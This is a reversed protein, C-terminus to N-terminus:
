EGTCFRAVYLSAFTQKATATVTNYVSVLYARRNGDPVLAVPGVYMADVKTQDPLTIAKPVDLSGGAGFSSDAAGAPTLARVSISTAEAAPTAVYIVSGDARALTAVVTDGVISAVGATGFASVPAGNADLSAIGNTGALFLGFDPKAANASPLVRLLAATAQGDSGFTADLAFTATFRAVDPTTSSWGGAVVVDDGAAPMLQLPWTGLGISSKASSSEAGTASLHILGGDTLVVLSGDSREVVDYVNGNSAIGTVGGIQVHGDGGFTTDVTGTPTVRAITTSEVTSPGSQELSLGLLYVDGTAAGRRIAAFDVVNPFIADTRGGTGFSPDLQGTAGLRVVSLSSSETSSPIRMDSPSFGVYLGSAGDSVTQITAQTVASPSQEYALIGGSGFATDLAGAAGCPPETPAAGDGTSGGDGAATAADGTRAGGEGGGGDGGTASSSSSSCAVPGLALALALASQAPRSPRM